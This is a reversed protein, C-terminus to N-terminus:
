RSYLVGAPLDTGGRVEEFGYESESEFLQQLDRAIALDLEALAGDADVRRRRRRKKRSDVRDLKWLALNIMHAQEEHNLFAPHLVFDTTSIPAVCPPGLARVLPSASALTIPAPSTHIARAAWRGAVDRWFPKCTLARPNCAMISATSRSAAGKMSPLRGRSVCRCFSIFCRRDGM